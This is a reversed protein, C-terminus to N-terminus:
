PKRNKGIERVAQIHQKLRYRIPMVANALFENHLAPQYVRSRRYAREYPQEFIHLVFRELEEDLKRPYDPDALPPQRLMQLYKEDDQDLEKVKEVLADMSDYDAANLFADRNFISTITPSGLYIPITDSFFADTIKETIFGYDVTSEFCITFKCKRQFDTKSEDNWSVAHGEPMNNLLAGLSEVRKYANLKRFIESRKGYESDHNTILNAFYPKEESLNCIHVPLPCKRSKEALAHWHNGPNTCFPLYFNRDAFSIPYCCVAYDVLNFDPVFNEGCEFIRIQPYKCYDYHTDGFLGCIIYDPEESVQVDYGNKMLCSCIPDYEPRIGEWMGVFKVKVTKM